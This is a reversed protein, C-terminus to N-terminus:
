APQLSAEANVTNINDAITAGGFAGPLVGVLTVGIQVTSLFDNPDELLVLARRARGDGREALRQLRSRRVSLLAVESMAFVGNIITLVVIIAIEFSITAMDCWIFKEGTLRKSDRLRISRLGVRGAEPRGAQQYGM